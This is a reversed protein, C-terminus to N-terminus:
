RRAERGVVVLLITQMWIGNGTDNGSERPEHGELIAGGNTVALVM